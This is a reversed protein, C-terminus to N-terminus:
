TTRTDRRRLLALAAGLGLVSLGILAVGGNAGTRPLEAPVTTPPPAAVTVTTEQPVAATTTGQVCVTSYPATWM